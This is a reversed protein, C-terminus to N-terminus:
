RKLTSSLDGATLWRGNAGQSLTDGALTLANLGQLLGDGSLTIAKVSLADALIKGSNDLSGAGLNLDGDSAILGGNRIDPIALTLNAASYLTGNQQNDLQQTNVGLLIDGQLLGRNTLRQSQTNLTSAVLVGSNALEPASLSLSAASSKGSHTLKERATATMTKQAAQTGALVAERANLSLHNGSQLQASTATILRDSQLQMDGGASIEGDLAATATNLTMAADSHTVSDNSSTLTQANV